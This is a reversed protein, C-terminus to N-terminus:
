RHRANAHSSRTLPDSPPCCAVCTGVPVCPHVDACICWFWFWVLQSGKFVARSRTCNVATCSLNFCNPSSCVRRLHALVLKTAHRTALLTWALAFCWARVLLSTVSIPSQEAWCTSGSDHRCHGDAGYTGGFERHGWASDVQVFLVGRFARKINICPFQKLCAIRLLFANIAREASHCFWSVLVLPRCHWM